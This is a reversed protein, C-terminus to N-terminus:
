DNKAKLRKRRFIIVSTFGVIILSTTAVTTWFLRKNAYFLVFWDTSITINDFILQNKNGAYDVCSISIVQGMGSPLEFVIKNDSNKHLDNIMESDMDVLIQDNNRIIRLQSIEGGPDKPLLIVEKSAAKYRGGSNIGSVILEPKTKDVVFFVEARKIDSYAVSGAKDLSKVTISYRGEKDFLGKNIVYNYRYWGAEHSDEEVVFDKGEALEEENVTISIKELPDVNIESIIISESVDRIYYSEVIKITNPNLLFTSGQRNVSFMISSKEQAQSEPSSGLINLTDSYNGALDEAICNISYIGDKELNNIRYIYERGEKVTIFEGIDLKEEYVRNSQDMFTGYISPEFVSYNTDSLIIDFGITDAKNASSDEIGSISISPKTTDLVIKNSKYPRMTNSSRDTYNAFVEYVGDMSSDGDAQLDIRGIWTDGNANWVPKLEPLPQNNRTIRSEFDEPYFNDETVHFSINVTGNYYYVDEKIQVPENYNVELNPTKNDVIMIRGDEYKSLNESCDYAKFSILGRYQGDNNSSSSPIVFSATAKRGDNSYKINNRDIIRDTVSNGHENNYSYTFYNIGSINDEASIEVTTKSDYFGFTIAEIVTSLIPSSYTISLDNPFKTDITFLIPEFDVANNLALDMYSIDFTYNADKDFSIVASYVDGNKSWNKENALYKNYDELEISNGEVTIGKIDVFVDNVRFNRDTIYITLSQRSDYYGVDNIINIPESMIETQILPAITDIVIIDSYYSEMVNGSRDMYEIGVIYEGDEKLILKTSWNDESKTWSEILADSYPIGDRLVKILVDEEYFNSENIIIELIADSSFFLKSDSNEKYEHVTNLTNKDVVHVPNMTVTRTPSISDVVLVTNDGTNVSSNEANDVARFYVRGVYEPPIDFSVKSTKRSKYENNVVELKTFQGLLKDEGSVGDILKYEFYGIGSIRDTAELTVIVPERYYGFTISNILKSIIPTSYSIKLQDGEPGEKDVIFEAVKKDSTNGAKDTCSIEVTYIASKSFELSINWSDKATQNWNAINRLKDVLQYTNLDSLISNDIDTGTIVCSLDEPHFNYEKVKLEILMSENSIQKPVSIEIIPKTKDIRILKSVYTYSGQSLDHESRYKMENDSKDKYIVSITYDGDDSLKIKAKHMDKDHEWILESKGHETTTYPVYEIESNSDIGAKKVRIEVDHIIEGNEMLQGEFFNAEEISIILDVDDSYLLIADDSTSSVKNNDMDVYLKPTNYSVTVSPAVNDVIIIKDEHHELINGSVDKAIFSINGRFQAPIEFSGKATRGNNTFEIDEITIEGSLESDDLTNSENFDDSSTVKYEFSYIGSVNDDAQITVIVPASYFGFSISEIITDMVSKSYTVVTNEPPTQDIVFEERVLEKASNLALDLYNLEINYKGDANFLLTATYRDGDKEWNAIDKIYENIDDEINNIENGDETEAIIRASIDKSRFNHEDIELEVQVEGSYYNMSDIINSPTESRNMRIVPPSDDIVITNSTYTKMKNTSRDMYDIILVYEGEGVVTITSTWIDGNKKWEESIVEAEMDNQILKIVVDESFFNTENIEINVVAKENFFLKLKENESDQEKTVLTEYDVVHVPNMTVTRTPSISDVVLVNSENFLDIKNGALDKTSFAVKGRFEPDIEFSAVATRGNDEYRIDKKTIINKEFEDTDSEMIYMYEFSNIGTIDDSASITVKIPAKYFGFTINNIIQQLISGSYTVTFDNQNPPQKDVQVCSNFDPYSNGAIDTYSISIDYNASESFILNATWINNNNVWNEENMLYDILLQTNVDELCNGKVDTAVIDVMLNDVSFIKESINFAVEIDQNSILEEADMSIEPKTCDILLKNSVYLGTGNKNEMISSYEMEKNTLDTYGIKVIYEGEKDLSIVTKYINNHGAWEIYRYNEKYTFYPVYKVESMEGNSSLRIISIEFNNIYKNNVVSGEFFNNDKVEIEINLPNVSNYIFETDENVVSVVKGDKGVKVKPESYKINVVPNSNNVIIFKNDAYVESINGAVDKVYFKVEGRFQTNITLYACIENENYVLDQNSIKIFYDSNNNDFTIYKYYISDIGSNYDTAKLEITASNYFLFHKDLLHISDLPDPYYINLGMPEESDLKIEDTIIESTIAGTEKDKLYVHANGKGEKDYNLYDAWVNGSGLENSYSIQYGEKAIIKVNGTFWGSDNKTEGSITYPNDPIDNNTVILKYEAYTGEYLDDGSRNVRVLVLGTQGPVFILNGTNRDISAINHGEIIEYSFKGEGLAKNSFSEGYYYYLENSDHELKLEQVAKKFSIKYSGVADEYKNDNFLKATIEVEGPRKATVVGDQNVDAISPNSSYYYISGTYKGQEDKVTNTFSQNWPIETPYPVIFGLKEPIAKNIKISYTARAENFFMNESIIAQVELTGAGKINKILGTSSDIDAIPNDGLVYYTIKRGNLNDKTIALNQYYSETNIAEPNPNEFRFDDVNAKKFVIEYYAEASKYNEDSAKTAKVKIIGPKKFTVVGDSDITAVDSGHDIAIASPTVSQYTVIGNGSGGKLPNYYKLDPASIIDISSPNRDKFYLEDQQEKEIMSINKTINNENIIISDSFSLFDPHSVSISYVKGEAKKTGFIKDIVFDGDEDTTISYNSYGQLEVTAGVIPNGNCSISGVLEVEPLKEMTIPYTNLDFSIASGSAVSVWSVDEYGYKTVSYASIGHLREEASISNLDFTARGSKNSDISLASGSVTSCWVTAGEIPSDESDKIMFTFDNEGIDAYISNSNNNVIINTLMIFMLMIAIIQRKKFINKM